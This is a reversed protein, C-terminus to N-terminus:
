PEDVRGAWCEECNKATYENFRRRRPRRTSGLIRLTEEFDRLRQEYQQLAREALEPLEEPPEEGGSGEPLYPGEM